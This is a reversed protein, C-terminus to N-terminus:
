KHHWWVEFKTIIIFIISVIVMFGGIAIMTTDNSSAGISSIIIGVFFALFSYLYQKKYRKSTLEITQVPGGSTKESLNNKCHKCFIAEDQIEEACFPCKKM